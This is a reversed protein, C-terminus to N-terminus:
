RDVPHVDMRSLLELFVMPSRIRVQGDALDIDHGGEVFGWQEIQHDEEL